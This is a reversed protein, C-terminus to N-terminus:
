CQTCDASVSWWHTPQHTIQRCPKTAPVAQMSTCFLRLNLLDWRHRSSDLSEAGEWLPQSGRVYTHIHSYHRPDYKSDYISHHQLSPQFLSPASYGGTQKLWPLRSVESLLNVKRNANVSGQVWISYYAHRSTTM